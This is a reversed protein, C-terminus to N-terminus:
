RRVTDSPFLLEAIALEDAQVQKEFEKELYQAKPDIEIVEVQKVTRFQFHTLAEDFSAFYYWGDVPYEHKDHSEIELLHKDSEVSTPAHTLEGSDPDLRYFGASM